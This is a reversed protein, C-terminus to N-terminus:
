KEPLIAEKSKIWIDEKDKELKLDPETLHSFKEKLTAAKKEWDGSVKIENTKKDHKAEM